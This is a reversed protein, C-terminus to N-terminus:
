RPFDCQVPAVAGDVGRTTARNGGSSRTEHYQISVSGPRRQIAAFTILPNERLPCPDRDIPVGDAPTLGCIIAILGQDMYSEAM